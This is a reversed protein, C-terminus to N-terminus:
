TKIGPTWDTSNITQKTWLTNTVPPTPQDPGGDYQLDGATSLLDTGNYDGDSDYVNALKGEM